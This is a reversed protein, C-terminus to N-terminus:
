PGPELRGFGLRGRGSCVRLGVSSPAGRTGVNWLAVWKWPVGTRPVFVCMYVCEVGDVKITRYIGCQAHPQHPNPFAAQPNQRQNPFGPKGEYSGRSEQMPKKPDRPLTTM